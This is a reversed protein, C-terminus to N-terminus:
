PVEVYIRRSNRLSIQFIVLEYTSILHLGEVAESPSGKRWMYPDVNRCIRYESYSLQRTTNSCLLQTYCINASRQVYCVTALTKM